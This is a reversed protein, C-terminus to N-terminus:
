FTFLSLSCYWVLFKTNDHLIESYLSYFYEPYEQKAKVLTYHLTHVNSLSIPRDLTYLQRQLEEIAEVYYKLPM